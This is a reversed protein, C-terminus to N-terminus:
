NILTLVTGFTQFSQVFSILVESVKMCKTLRDIEEHSLDLEELKDGFKKTSM